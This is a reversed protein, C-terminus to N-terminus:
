DIFEVDLICHIPLTTGQALVIADDGTILVRTRLRRLELQDQYTLIVETQDIGELTMARLLQAKRRIRDRQTSLVDDSKQSHEDINFRLQKSTNESKMMETLNPRKVQESLLLNWNVMLKMAKKTQSTLKFDDSM